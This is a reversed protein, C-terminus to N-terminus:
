LWGIAGSQHWSVQWSESRGLGHPCCGKGYKLGTTAGRLMYPPPRTGLSSTSVPFPFTQVQARQLDGVLVPRDWGAGRPSPLPHLAVRDIVVPVDLHPCFFILIRKQPGSPFILIIGLFFFFRLFCVLLFFVSSRVGSNNELDTHDKRWSKIQKKCQFYSFPQLNM